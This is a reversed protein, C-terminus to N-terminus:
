INIKNLKKYIKKVNKYVKTYVNSYINYYKMANEKIPTFTKEIRVMNKSAENFDKYINLGIFCAMAAGIGSAEYTQILYVEKNLIDSLIQCIINSRSGGGSLAIKNIKVKSVQEIREIGEKLTYGIGEIIARYIHVRTHKDNFGLISGKAEPRLIDQGWYPQLVLGDCGIPVANLKEDMVSFIDEEHEKAFIQEKYGFEKIFWTVLWFGRYLIIEPNYMNPIVSDFPPVFRTLEYYKDTTVQITVQSGLSISGIGEKICGVGATECAKDSGSAILPTRKNIHIRECIEDSIYGMISTSPAIDALKSQEINFIQRKIGYSKDYIRKKYDFPIHGVTGADSEIYKGIFKYNLYQPLLLYKYTKNWIEPENEKVWNYRADEIFNKVMRNMGVAKFLISYLPNLKQYEKAKRRDLWSIANRLPEGHKDVLVFTDRQTTISVAKIKNYLHENKNRLTNLLKIIDEFFDNADFEIITGKEKRIYLYEKKEKLLIDGKKDILMARISQTGCDIILVINNM